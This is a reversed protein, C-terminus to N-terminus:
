CEDVCEVRNRGKDKAVYLGADARALPQDSSQDQQNFVAIGISVTYDLTEAGHMCATSEVRQRLRDAFIRAGKLDSGPLLVAFEEGGMRGAMDIKRLSQRILDAFQRLVEDGAAHGYTDNVRKFHDIDIMLLATPKHYRQFRSLEQELRELFYRRNPLGTLTDTTALRRLEQEREKRETIDRYVWLHGLFRGDSVIPLYDRELARGDAMTIEEGVVAERQQLITDIRQVFREPKAFLGMAQEASGSCDVGKLTEPPYPIAFLDCFTQNTLLIHRHEDELLIGGYFNEIVTSLRAGTQQLALEAQKRASIDSHTGVVRLPKGSQWEIVKGRGQTWIWGKEAHRYRFEVVFTEGVALQREVESFAEDIDDPHILGKWTAFDVVFANPRYGLMEYCRADWEVQGSPVHWEWLGDKVAVLTTRYREESRRLELEMQKIDTIDQVTGLVSLLRGDNTVALEAMERVWRTEGNVVIRHEIDYPAGQLAAQWAADVHHRDEPHIFSLFLDYDAAEDAGLGFIQRTEPSWILKGNATELEWSGMHAVTQARHLMRENDQLAAVATDIRQQLTVRSVKLVWLLGGQTFLYAIFLALQTKWQHSHWAAMAQTKDRWILVSGVHRREPQIKGLYDGLPFRTLHWTVGEWELLETRTEGIDLPTMIAAQMWDKVQDRSYAELYCQCGKEARPGSLARFDEWVADEIHERRLVVAFGAGILEDLRSLQVEFATGAELAGIYERRGEEDTHWVPVVGRMGSYIRGTEFGSRPQQDRNVDEIIHRLGDMRDGFREPTHVRLYSLSGPGFQFHLQRLGFQQQMDHWAPSVHRFLQERLEATRAAGPGGGEALLAQKGQWFLSQVQPDAAVMTALGLMQQELDSLAVEFSTRLAASEQELGRDLEHRDHQWFSVGILVFILALLSSSLVLLLPFSLRQMSDVPIPFGGM